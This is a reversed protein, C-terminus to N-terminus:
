KKNNSRGNAGKRMGQEFNLKNYLNFTSLSYLYLKCYFHEQCIQKIEKDFTMLKIQRPSINIFDM